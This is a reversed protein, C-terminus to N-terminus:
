FLNFITGLFILVIFFIGYLVYQQTKGNQIFQFYNLFHNLRKVAPNVFRSEAFDLYVSDHTRKSPHLEDARIEIYKKEEKLLFNLLKGLTKSFSKGTYQMRTNAATYGCGWTEAISSPKQKVLKFRIFILVASVIIFIMSFRGVMTITEIVSDAVSFDVFDKTATSSILVSIAKDYFFQPFIGIFVIVAIILYQPLRMVFSVEHAHETHESRPSGLFIVGFAKTFTLVAIGGILALGAIGSIMLFVATTDVSKIGELFGSYLIFESVFANFPPLGVATLIAILYFVATHPMKHILGGLKEMDRTHTQQYVSGSSYFLMSKFLSHNLSHLLAGGYGFIILVSNEIGSGILGMGIGIGVIGINEVTSYAPMKKIDFRMAANLIGYLGTAISLSLIIEGLLLQDHALYFVMRLIGYIGLKVIVGSMVGSVHSPAAPHAEPLWTHLPVFGSKVAFGIFFLIFLWISPNHLFYEQVAKFDFSSTSFYIWIFGITLFAVSIHMQVLYNIGAKLTNTNQHEFIVLLMSSISMVEWATLFILSNQLVCVWLMSAHFTIFLIWHLSLNSKRDAYSKMYGSGFLVGTISTFNIILIFWASLSDIRIAILGTIPSGQLLIETPLGGLANWAPILSAAANSIVAIVAAISKLKPNVFPITVVSVALVVFSFYIFPM